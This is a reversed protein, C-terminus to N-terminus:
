GGFTREFAEIGYTKPCQQDNREIMCGTSRSYEGDVVIYHCSRLLWLCMSMWDNYDRTDELGDSVLHPVVAMFGPIANIRRGVAIADAKNKTVDGTYQRCVYVFKM